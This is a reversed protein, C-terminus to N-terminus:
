PNTLAARAAAAAIAQVRASEIPFDAEAWLQEAKALAAGMQPGAAVGHAMMDSARLPFQPTAAAEFVASWEGPVMAPTECALGLGFNRHGLRHALRRAAASDPIPQGHLAEFARAAAHLTEHGANSLRLMMRLREADARSLVALAALREHADTEPVLRLLAALRAAVAIGGTVMQWIGTDSLIALTPVANKAMLLKMLENHIRERSLAALGARRSICAALGQEDPQGDGYAAHFRFFRLIRLADEAIRQGPAGIFRVRRAAIDALGGVHDHLRGDPSLMLANMTFDRRLADTEFDRGFRVTARRGDTEIDERLTTVEFPTGGAVVTITGHAIGTPIAKFGAARARRQTEQPLATTALDIDAVPLGLLTNRVAGGVIRVEEGAGSLAALVASLPQQGLLHKLRPDAM